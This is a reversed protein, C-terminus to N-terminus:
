TRIPVSKLWVRWANEYWWISVLDTEFGGLNTVTIIVGERRECCHCVRRGL